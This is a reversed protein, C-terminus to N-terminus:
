EMREKLGFEVIVPLHDSGVSKGVRESKIAIGDNHLCHDIPILFLPSFSPWSPHIARGQSSNVLGSRRIFDGYIPSWPTLNLDGLLILPGNNTGVYRAM